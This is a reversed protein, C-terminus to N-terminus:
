FLEGQKGRRAPRPRAPRSLPQEISIRAVRVQYGLNTITEAQNALNVRSFFPLLERVSGRRETGVAYVVTPSPRESAALPWESAHLERVYSQYDGSGNFLASRGHFLRASVSGQSFLHSLTASQKLKKVCIFQFERNLLDCVEVRGYHDVLQMHHREMNIWNKARAARENYDNENEGLHWPPVALDIEEIRDLGRDILALTDEEVHFWLGNALVYKEDALTVEATLYDRLPRPSALRNDDADIPTVKLRRLPDSGGNRIRGHVWHLDIEHRVSGQIDYRVDADAAFTDPCAVGVDRHPLELLRELLKRELAGFRPDRAPIPRLLDLFPYHARYGTDQYQKLLYQLVDDLRSLEAHEGSVDVTVSQAGSMSRTLGDDTGGSLTRVWETEYDISFDSLRGPTRVSQHTVRPAASLTSSGIARVQDPAVSNAAVRIGFDPVLRTVDLLHRGQGFTVAFFRNHVNVLLVASSASTASWQLDFFDRLYGAWHPRDRRRTVLVVDCRFPLGRAPERQIHVGEGDLDLLDDFTQTQEGFLHVNLKM